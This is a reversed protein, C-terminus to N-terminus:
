TSGRPLVGVAAANTMPDNVLAAAIHAGASTYTNFQV